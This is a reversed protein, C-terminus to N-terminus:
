ILTRQGMKATWSVQELGSSKRFLNVTAPGFGQFHNNSLVYAHRILDQKERLATTWYDIDSTRERLIKGFHEEPISRDGILRLYVRDTTLVPPGRATPIESWAMTINRERLFFFVDDRFWSDNRFEVAYRATKPLYDSIKVLRPYGERYTLSPPFQFLVMALKRGLVSIRNVFDMVESEVNELRSNHTISQPVKATFLFDPPTIERWTEITSDDPVRYFTSDIEVLDFVKSYIGLYDHPKSGPPYFPGVWQSYSWGSCGTRLEM